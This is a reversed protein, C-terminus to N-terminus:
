RNRSLTDVKVELLIPDSEGLLSGSSSVAQLVVPGGSANRDAKVQLTATKVNPPVQVPGASIGAPLQRPQITVATNKADGFRRVTVTIAHSADPGVSISEGADLIVKPPSAVTLEAKQVQMPGYIYGASLNQYRVVAEHEVTRGNMSGRAKIKIPFRGPPIEGVKLPLLVITGDVVRDV